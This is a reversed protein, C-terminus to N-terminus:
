GLHCYQVHDDEFISGVVRGGLEFQKVLTGSVALLHTGYLNTNHRDELWTVPAEIGGLVNKLTQMSRGEEDSIGFVEQSVIQTKRECVAGTVRQFMAEASENDEPVSTMFYEQCSERHLTIVELGPSVTKQLNAAGTTEDNRM